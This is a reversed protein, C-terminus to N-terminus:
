GPTLNTYSVTDEVTIPGKATISKKGNVTAKTGIKPVKVKVTQGEDEINAHVALEKGDRYLNEFIVIDTDQKIFKSDFTFKVTVEGSPNEPTFSAESHIKKGNIVLPKGTSKDILIGKLVYEKGPILHKYSVTDTLTFVETACIEKEGDVTATTKIEPIRDNVATIEIIQENETVTIRHINDSPLYNEAPQLEKITWEGFPRNEFTFIGNENSKALLIATKETFETEDAKFLGFM